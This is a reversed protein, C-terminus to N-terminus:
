KDNMMEQLARLRRWELWTLLIVATDLVSLGLMWWSPRYAYRIMQYAVFAAFAVMAVPYAWTKRRLLQVVLVTKILGHSLLYIGAFVQASVTYHQALRGLYSALIDGPDEALEGQMLSLVFSALAAPAVALVIAGSILEAAANLGKAIVGILFLRHILWGKPRIKGHTNWWQRM